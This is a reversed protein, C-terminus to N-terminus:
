NAKISTEKPADDETLDEDTHNKLENGEGDETTCLKQYDEENDMDVEAIDLLAKHQAQPTEELDDDDSQQADAPSVTPVATKGGGGNGLTLDDMGVGISQDDPCVTAEEDGSSDSM